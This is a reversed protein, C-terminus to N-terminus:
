ERIEAKRKERIEVRQERNETRQDRIEVKGLKVLYVTIVLV